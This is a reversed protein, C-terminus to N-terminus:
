KWGHQIPLASMEDQAEWIFLQEFVFNEWMMLITQPFVLYM